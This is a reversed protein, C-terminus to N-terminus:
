RQPPATAITTTRVAHIMPTPLGVESLMLETLGAGDAGGYVRAHPALAAAVTDFPIDKRVVADRVIAALHGRDLRARALDAITRAPTTVPLGDVLTREDTTVTSHHLAMDHRRTQHRSAVTFELIDADVDGLDHLLAASRHSVVAVGHRQVRDGAVHTPDLALWAARLEDHRHPPTGALRYVGHTLRVLLGRRSLRAVGQRNVGAASAQATTVLGWQDSAIDSIQSLFSRSM